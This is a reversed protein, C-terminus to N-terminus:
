PRQEKPSAQKAEKIMRRITEHHEAVERWPLAVQADHNVGYECSCRDCRIHWSHGLKELVRMQRHFLLCWIERLNMASFM